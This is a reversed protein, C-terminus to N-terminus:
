ETERTSFKATKFFDGFKFEHSILCAFILIAFNISYLILLIIFNLAIGVHRLKKRAQAMFPLFFSPGYSGYPGRVRTILPIYQTYM